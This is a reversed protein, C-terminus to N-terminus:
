EFELQNLNIIQGQQCTKIWGKKTKLSCIMCDSKGSCLIPCFVMLECHTRQKEIQQFFEHYKSLNERHIEIGIFDAWHITESLLNPAVLEVTPPIQFEKKESFYAINKKNMIGIEMLANLTHHSSEFNILLINQFLNIDVFGDGIPGRINLVSGIDWSSEEPFSFYIDGRLSFLYVPVLHTDLVSNSALLFQGPKITSLVKDITFVKKSGFNRISTIKCILEKV